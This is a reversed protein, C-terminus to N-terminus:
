DQKFLGSDLNRLTMGAELAQPFCQSKKIEEIVQRAAEPAVGLSRKAAKLRVQMNPHNFLRLLAMRAELGRRRLEQDVENMLNFLRKFKKYEDYLLAQDQAVGIEAFRLVLQDVNLDELKRKM